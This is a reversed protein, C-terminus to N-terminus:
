TRNLPMICSFMYANRRYLMDRTQAKGPGIDEAHQSNSTRRRKEFDVVSSLMEEPSSFWNAFRSEVLNVMVLVKVGFGKIDGSLNSNPRDNVPM